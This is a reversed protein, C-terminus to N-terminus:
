RRDPDLSRAAAGAAASPRDHSSASTGTPRRGPVRLRTASRILGPDPGTVARDATRRRPWAPAAEARMSGPPLPRRKRGWRAGSPAVFASLLRVGSWRADGVPEPVALTPVRAM